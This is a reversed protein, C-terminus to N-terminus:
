VDKFVYTLLSADIKEEAHEGWLYQILDIDTACRRLRDRHKKTWRPSVPQCENPPRRGGRRIINRTWPSTTPKLTRAVRYIPGTM